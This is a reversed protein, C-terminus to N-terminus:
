RHTQGAHRARGDPRRSFHRQGFVREVPDSLHAGFPDLRTRGVVRTHQGNEFRRQLEQVNGPQGRRVDHQGARRLVRGVAGQRRQLGFLQDGGVVRCIM